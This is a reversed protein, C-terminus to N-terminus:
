GVCSDSQACNADPDGREIQLTAHSIGFRAKLGRALEHLFTDDPPPQPMLLHATLATATTSLPWIHLDHLDDVGDQMKLWSRIEHPDIARPVGDISLNLSDRLLGWTSVFIVGAILLSALPDFWYLGFRWIVLGSVVVGLSVLADAAMHLYAGRVNLDHEKGGVFFWATLSNIVVGVAAVAMITQGAPAPPSIFRQLAEWCIVLVVALLLMGSFLSALITARSYGYTRHLSPQKGALYNAGWALLLGLVDSLNHGADTILALSDALVGYFAEVAVFVLNLAVGVAFARNYDLPQHPEHHHDLTM